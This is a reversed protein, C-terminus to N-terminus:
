KKETKNLEELASFVVWKKADQDQKTIKKQRLSSQDIGFYYHANRFKEVDFSQLTDTENKKTDM